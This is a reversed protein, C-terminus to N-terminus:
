RAAAKAPVFCRDAKCSLTRLLLPGVACVYYVTPKELYMNTHKCYITQSNIKNNNNNNNNNTQSYVM